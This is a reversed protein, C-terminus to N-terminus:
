SSTHAQAMTSCFEQHECVESRYRPDQYQNICLHALGPKVLPCPERDNINIYQSDIYEIGNIVTHNPIKM